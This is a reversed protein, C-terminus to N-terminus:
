SDSEEPLHRRALEHSRQSAMSQDPAAIIGASLLYFLVTDLARPKQDYLEQAAQVARPLSVKNFGILHAGYRPAGDVNMYGLWSAAPAADRIENAIEKASVDPKVRCDDEAWCVFEIGPEKLKAAAIPAFHQLFYGTLFNSKKPTRPTSGGRHIRPTTAM